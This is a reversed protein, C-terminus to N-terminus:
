LSLLNIYNKIIDHKTDFNFIPSYKHYILNELDLKIYEKIKSGDFFISIFYTYPIIVTIHGFIEDKIDQCLEPLNFLKYRFSFTDKLKIHIVPPKFPYQELKYYINDINVTNTINMVKTISDDDVSQLSIVDGYEIMHFLTNNHPLIDDVVVSYKMISSDTYFFPTKYRFVNGIESPNFRNISKDSEAIFKIDKGNRKCDKFEKSLRRLMTTPLSM